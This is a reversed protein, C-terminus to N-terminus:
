RAGGTTTPVVVDLDDRVYHLYDVAPDPEAREVEVSLVGEESGAIEAEITGDPGVFRTGGVFRQGGESGVRNVYLHPRRNDLSRARSALLHDGYYPEMNAAATLLLEAGARTLARAPECLEVDFCIMPGARWGALDTVMLRSGATFAAAEAGFLHAKRYLGVLEGSRDIMALSNFFAAGRRETFGVVVATDAARAAARVRDLPASDAEIAIEALRALRYGGLFLEPFAVLDADKGEAVVDAVREAGEDAEPPAVLQALLARM